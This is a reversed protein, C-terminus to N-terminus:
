QEIIIQDGLVVNVSANCSGSEGTLPDLFSLNNINKIGLTQYLRPFYIYGDREFSEGFISPYEYTTTSSLGTVRWEMMKNVIINGASAEYYGKGFDQYAQCVPKLTGTIPPIPDCSINTYSGSLDGNTCNRIESNCDGNIDIDDYYTYSGGNAIEINSPSPGICSREADCDDNISGTGSGTCEWEWPSGIVGTVNTPTTATFTCLNITPTSPFEMNEATGCSGDITEGGSKTAQCSDLTGGNLGTCDWEWPGTTGGSVLTTASSTYSCLDEDTMPRSSVITDNALGCSGNIKKPASCSVSAVTGNTGNCRWNFATTADTVPTTSSATYICLNTTPANYVPTTTASGCSGAIVSSVRNATCSANTGLDSGNCSWTASSGVAPFAVTTPSKTGTACYSINTTGVFRTDTATYTKANVGCSGNIPAAARTATCVSLNGCAIGCYYNVSSGAVPFTPDSDIPYFPPTTPLIYRGGVNCFDGSFATDTYAYAKAAPGCSANQQNPNPIINMSYSITKAPISVTVLGQTGYCSDNYKKGSWAAAETASFNVTASITGTTDIVGCDYYYSGSSNVSPGRCYMDPSSFSLRPVKAQVALYLKKLNVGVVSMILDRDDCSAPTRFYDVFMGSPCGSVGSPVSIGVAGPTYSNVVGNPGFTFRLNDGCYVNTGTTNVVSNDNSTNIVESKYSAGISIGNLIVSDYADPWKGLNRKVTDIYFSNVTAAEVKSISGLTINLIIFLIFLSNKLFINNTKM